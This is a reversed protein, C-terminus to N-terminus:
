DDEVNQIGELWNIRKKSPERGRSQFVHHIQTESEPSMLAADEEYTWPKASLHTDGQNLLYVVADKANGSYIILAHVVVALPQGTTRMLVDITKKVHDLEAKDAFDEDETDSEYGASDSEESDETEVLAELEEYRPKKASNSLRKSRRPTSQQALQQPPKRKRANSEKTTEAESASQKGKSKASPKVRYKDMSLLSNRKVCDFVYKVSVSNSNESHNVDSDSFLSIVGDKLRRSLRAGNEVLISRIEKQDTHNTITGIHFILPKGQEDVFLKSKSVVFRSM